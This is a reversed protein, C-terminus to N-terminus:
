AWHDPTSLWFISQEIIEIPKMDWVMYHSGSSPIAEVLLFACIGTKVPLGKHIAGQESKIQTIGM